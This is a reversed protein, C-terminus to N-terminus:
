SKIAFRPLGGTHHLIMNVNNEKFYEDVAIRQGKFVDYDDIILVGGKVLKPFLYNLEYRTSEYFDTDLRLLSISNSSFKPLTYKVDGKIFFIKEKNYGTDYMNNKVEDLSVSEFNLKEFENKADLVINGNGDLQVDIDRPTTMGSFTDFLYLDRESKLNILTNAVAMMSGGKWVGCEIMDGPINNKIIYKVSSILASISRSNTQSYLKVNNIIKKESEDSIPLIGEPWQLEKFELSNKLLRQLESEDINKNKLQSTWHNLGEEDVNRNLIKLYVKRVITEFYKEDNQDSM